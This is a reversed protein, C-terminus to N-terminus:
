IQLLQNTLNCQKSKTEKDVCHLAQIQSITWCNLSSLVRGLSMCEIGLVWVAAWLLRYNWDRSIKQGGCATPVCTTCLCPHLCFVCICLLNVAHKFPTFHMYTFLHVHFNKRLSVTYIVAHTANLWMFGLLCYWINLYLSQNLPLIIQVIKETKMHKYISSVISQAKYCKAICEFYSGSLIRLFAYTCM